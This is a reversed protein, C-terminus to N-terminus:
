EDEVVAADAVCVSGTGCAEREMGDVSEGLREEGVSLQITKSTCRADATDDGFSELIAAGDRTGSDVVDPVIVISSTPFCRADSTVPRM